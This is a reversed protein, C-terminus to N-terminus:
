QGIGKPITGDKYLWKEFTRFSVFMLACAFWLWGDIKGYFLAITAIAFPIVKVAILKLIFQQIRMGCLNFFEKAPQLIM